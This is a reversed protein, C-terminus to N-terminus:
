RAAARAATGANRSDEILRARAEPESNINERRVRGSPDVVGWKKWAGLWRVYWQGTAEVPELIKDYHHVPAVWRLSLERLATSRGGGYIHEVRALGFFSGADNVVQILQGFHLQDSLAIWRDVPQLGEDIKEDDPLTLLLPEGQSISAVELRRQDFPRLRPKGGDGDGDPWPRGADGKADTKPPAAM